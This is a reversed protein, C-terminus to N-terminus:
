MLVTITLRRNCNSLFISANQPSWYIWILKIAFMVTYVLISFDNNDINQFFFLFFFFFFSDKNLSDHKSQSSPRVSSTRKIRQGCTSKPHKLINYENCQRQHDHHVGTYPVVRRDRKRLKAM